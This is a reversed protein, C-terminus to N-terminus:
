RLRLVSANCFVQLFAVADGRQICKIQEPAEPEACTDGVELVSVVHVDDCIHNRSRVPFSDCTIFENVSIRLFEM